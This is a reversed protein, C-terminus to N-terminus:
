FRLTDTRIGEGESCRQCWVRLPEAQHDNDENKDALEVDRDTWDSLRARRGGKERVIKAHRKEYEVQNRVFHTSGIFPLMRRVLQTELQPELCLEDLWFLDVERFGLHKIFFIPEICFQGRSVPFLFLVTKSEPLFSPVEHKTLTAM